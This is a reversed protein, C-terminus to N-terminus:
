KESSPRTLFYDYVMMLRAFIVHQAIVFDKAGNVLAYYRDPDFPLANGELDFQVKTREGVPFHWLMIESEGNTSTSIYISCFPTSSAISDRKSNTNDFAEFTINQFNSLYQSILLADPQRTDESHFDEKGRLDFQDGNVEIRYAHEPFQPYDVAVAKFDKVDFDFVTRDRWAEENLFFRPTLFGEQGPVYVIFPQDAVEGDEEMIAYTGRSDNTSGGIYFSKILDDGEYVETRIGLSALEKVVNNYAPDPVEIKIQIRLLTMLLVDVAPNFAKYKGNIMWDGASKELLAAAGTKDSLFIKTITSTDQVAFDDAQWKGTSKKNDLLFKGALILGVAALIILLILNNRKM